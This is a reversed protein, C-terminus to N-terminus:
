MEKLFRYSREYHYQIQRRSYRHRSGVPCAERALCRHACNSDTRLREETCNDLLFVDGTASAPCSKLCPKGVCTECPSSVHSTESIPLSTDAAAVLRYSFWTGFEPHIGIGLKSEAHWGLLNGLSRLDLADHWFPYIVDYHECGVRTMFDSFLDVARADLPDNGALEAQDFFSSGVHGLVILQSFSSIHDPVLDLCDELNLVAQLQLGQQYLKHDLSM